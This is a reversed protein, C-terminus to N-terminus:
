GTLIKQNIIDHIVTDLAKQVIPLRDEWHAISTSGVWDSVYKICVFPIEYKEAFLAQAYSEMDAYACQMDNINTVFESHTEIEVIDTTNKNSIKKHPFSKCSSIFTNFQITKGIDFRDKSVCSGINYIAKVNKYDVLTLLADIIGIGTYVIQRLSRYNDSIELPTAVTIIYEM